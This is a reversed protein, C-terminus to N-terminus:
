FVGGTLGIDNRSGDADLWALDPDGADIAPSGAQPTFDGGEPDVFQPDASLQGDPVGFGDAWFLSWESAVASGRSQNCEAVINNRLTAAGSFLRGGSPDVDDVNYFVNNALTLTGNHPNLVFATAARDITVDDFLTQAVLLDDVKTTELVADFVGGRITNRVFRADIGQYLYWLWSTTNDLWTVDEMILVDEDFWLASSGTVDRVVSDQVTVVGEISTLGGGRQSGGTGRLTFGRLVLAAERVYVAGTGGGDITTVEPGGTSVITVDDGRYLGIPGYSGPCVAIVQGPQAADIAAQIGNFEESGDGCVRLDAASMAGTDCPIVPGASRNAAHTVESGSPASGCGVVAVCWVGLRLM